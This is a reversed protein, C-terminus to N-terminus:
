QGGVTIEGLMTPHVSCRYVFRGPDRFVFTHEGGPPITGRSSGPRGGEMVVSHPFDDRNVWRVATGPTVLVDRPEFAFERMDVTVPPQQAGVYALAVALILLTLFVIAVIVWPRM